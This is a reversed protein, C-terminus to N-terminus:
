WLLRRSSCITKSSCTNTTRTANFCRFLYTYPKFNSYLIDYWEREIVTVSTELSSNGKVDYEYWTPTGTFTAEGTSADVTIATIDGYDAFYVRKIGGFASKCPLKRGTTLTCAM